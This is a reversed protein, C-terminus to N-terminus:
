PSSHSAAGWSCRSRRWACHKKSRIFKPAQGRANCKTKHISSCKNQRKCRSHSASQMLEQDGPNSGPQVALRMARLASSPVALCLYAQRSAPCHSRYTDGRALLTHCLWKEPVQAARSTHCKESTQQHKAKVRNRHKGSKWM